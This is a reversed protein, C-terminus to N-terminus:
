DEGGTPDSPGRHETEVERGIWVIRARVIDLVNLSRLPLLQWEGGGAFGAIELGSQARRVYRVRVGANDAVVWFGPSKLAMRAQPNRDLLVLDGPRFEDPLALDAALYAALPDTLGSVMAATLPVYGRLAEFSAATGPGIRDRLLPVPIFDDGAVVGAVVGAAVGAGAQGAWLIQPVTVELARMLRDAADPSLVRIGKLANHLHPQSIGARRALSRESVAGSHVRLRATALIRRCLEAINLDPVKL